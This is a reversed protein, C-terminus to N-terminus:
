KAPSAVTKIRLYDRFGAIGHESGTGSIGWGSFPADPSLYFSNNINVTGAKIRYDFVKVVDRDKNRILKLRGWPDYEYYTIKGNIDSQSTVGVLPDYTYSTM